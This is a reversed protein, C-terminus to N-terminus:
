VIEFKPGPTCAMVAEYLPSAFLGGLVDAGSVCITSALVVTVKAVLPLGATNPLETVKVAATGALAFPWGVPVTLKRSLPVPIPLAVSLPDPLAFRRVEVRLAPDCEIVATYTPSASLAPLM